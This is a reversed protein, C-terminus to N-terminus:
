CVPTPTMAGAWWKAPYERFVRARRKIEPSNPRVVLEAEYAASAEPCRELAGYAEGPYHLALFDDPRLEHAQKLM